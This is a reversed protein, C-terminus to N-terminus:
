RSEDVDVFSPRDGQHLVFRYFERMQSIVRSWGFEQQMWERGNSGKAQLVAPDLSMAEILAAALADVGHQIWWGCDRQVVKSWPAGRNTIVPTGVSLSEAVTMGFNESPSPLVYLAAERFVQLKESEEFKPGEIRVSELRLEGILRELVERYGGTSPGVIRLRWDPKVSHVRAWARLLVDIGKEPHLRGFFLVTRFCKGTGDSQNQSIDIGNPIVAVPQRFGCRRIDDLESAATAHFATAAELAPKQILPWYFSKFRSGSQMSYKTLTGRPSVIHPVERWKSIFWPFISPMAWLNHSHLISYPREAMEERLCRWMAPAYGLKKPGLVNFARHPTRVMHQETGVLTFLDVEEGAGRLGESLKPISYAPGGASPDIWSTLHCIRM